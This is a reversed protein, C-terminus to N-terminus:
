RTIVKDAYNKLRNGNYFYHPNIWYTDKVVTKNLYGKMVLEKVASKYTNISAITSEEMYREKNIWLYDKGKKVEYLVWMLLDKSRPSLLAMVKRRDADAFLKCYPVSEFEFDAKVWVDYDEKKFKDDSKFKNVVVKLTTVFPNIGLEDEKIEPKEYKSMDIVFMGFIQCNIM